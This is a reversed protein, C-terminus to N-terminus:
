VSPHWVRLVTKRGHGGVGQTLRLSTAQIDVPKSPYVSDRDQRDDYPKKHHKGRRIREGGDVLATAVVAGKFAEPFSSTEVAAFTM